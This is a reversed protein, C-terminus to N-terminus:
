TTISNTKIQDGKMMKKWQAKTVMASMSGVGAAVVVLVGSEPNYDVTTPVNFKIGEEIVAEEKKVEETIVKEETDGFGYKELWIDQASKKEM